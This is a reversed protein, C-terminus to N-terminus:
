EEIETFVATVEPNQAAWSQHQKSKLHRLRNHFASITGCTCKVNKKSARYKRGADARMAKYGPKAKKTQYQKKYFDPRKELWRRKYEKQKTKYEHTAQYKRQRLKKHEDTAYCVQCNLEPKLKQRWFEEKQRLQSTTECEYIELAMIGFYEIGVERMHVHLDTTAGHRALLRHKRFRKEKREITSGVYQKNDVTNAVLYVIGKISM